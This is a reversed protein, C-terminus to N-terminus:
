LSLAKADLGEDLEDVVIVDHRSAVVQIHGLLKLLVDGLIAERLLFRLLCDLLVDLILKLLSVLVNCVRLVLLNGSAHVVEEPQYVYPRARVNM